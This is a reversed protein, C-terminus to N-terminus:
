GRGKEEMQREEFTPDWFTKEGRKQIASKWMTRDSVTDGKIQRENESRNARYIRGDSWWNGMGKKLTRETGQIGPGNRRFRNVLLDFVEM